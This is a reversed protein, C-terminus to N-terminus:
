FDTENKIELKFTTKNTNTLVRMLDRMTKKSNSVDPYSDKNIYSFDNGVALCGRLQTYYNAPHILIYSRNPVNLVHLHKSYKQSTRFVVDYEGRPICSINKINDLFPLELTVCSYQIINEDNLVYLRGLTQKDDHMFRSVIIKM